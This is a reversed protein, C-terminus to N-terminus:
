LSFIVSQEARPPTLASVHWIKVGGRGWVVAVACPLIECLELGAVSILLLVM